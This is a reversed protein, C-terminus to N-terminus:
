FIAADGESRRLTKGKGLRGKQATSWDYKMQNAKPKQMKQGKMNTKFAKEPQKKRSGEKKSQCVLAKKQRSAKREEVALRGSSYEGTHRGKCGRVKEVHGRTKKQRGSDGEKRVV